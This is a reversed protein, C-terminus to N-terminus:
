IRARAPSLGRVLAEAQDVIMPVLEEAIFAATDTEPRTAAWGLYTLGRIFMFADMLAEDEPRLSRVGRYGVLLADAMERYRAHRQYFFLATALDFLYWGDGFDDFDILVYGQDGTLINEPTFDAHIAGYVSPDTGYDRLLHDVATISADIITTQEPSLGPALRPDGWLPKAGVLGERDWPARAFRRTRSVTESAQHLQAALAGLTEFDAATLSATGSWASDTDGLQGAAMVWRQADVVVELGDVEVTVTHEGSTTRLLDAVPVGEAGLAEIFESEAVIEHPARYGPRHLRLAVPGDADLVRFVCNERIKVFELPADAPIGFHPLALRALAPANEENLVATL